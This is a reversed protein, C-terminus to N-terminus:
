KIKNNKTKAIDLRYSLKIVINGYNSRAFYDRKSSGYINGLGFYYRGELLMHGAKPISFEIGGGAAIGYDFKKEVPMTEQNIVRSARSSINRQSLEYNAKTSENLYFGFQPGAQIFFQFGKRERGWGMRALLPVQVYNIRREYEEPLETQPNIVPEDNMDLIDQQWGIQAYNVEAVIACISSFYKETTYRFTLGGLMGGYQKQPVVPMFDITSFVYGGSVGVAFEDRHDGIQAASTLPLFTFLYFLLFCKVWKAGGVKNFIFNIMSRKEM